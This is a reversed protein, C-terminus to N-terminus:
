RIEDERAEEARAGVLHAGVIADADVVLEDGHGSFTKDDGAEAFDAGDASVGGVGAFAVGGQEHVAEEEVVGGGVHFGEEMDAFFVGAGNPEVLAYAEDHSVGNRQPGDGLLAAIFLLSHRDMVNAAVLEAANLRVIRAANGM